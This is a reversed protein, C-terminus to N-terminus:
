KETSSWVSRFKSEEVDMEDGADDSGVFVVPGRPVEHFYQPHTVYARNVKGADNGTEVDVDEFVRAVIFVQLDPIAGVFGIPGGGLEKSVKRQDLRVSTLTGDADCRMCMTTTNGRPM